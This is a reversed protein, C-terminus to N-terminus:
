SLLFMFMFKSLLAIQACLVCSKNEFNLMVFIAVDENLHGCLIPNREVRFRESRGGLDIQNEVLLGWVSYPLVFKEFSL